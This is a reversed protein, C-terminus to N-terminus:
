RRITTSKPPMTTDFIEFPLTNKHQQYHKMLTDALEADSEMLHFVAGRVNKLYVEPTSSNSKERNSIEAIYKLFNKVFNTKEPAQKEIAEFIAEFCFAELLTYDKEFQAEQIGNLGICITSGITKDGKVTHCFFFKSAVRMLEKRNYLERKFKKSTVPITLRQFYTVFNKDARLSHLYLKNMRMVDPFYKELGQFASRNALLYNFRRPHSAIFKGLNDQLNDRVIPYVGVYEGEDEKYKQAKLEIYKEFDQAFTTIPLLSLILYVLWFRSKM